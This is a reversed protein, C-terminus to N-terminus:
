GYLTWFIDLFRGPMPRKFSRGALYGLADYTSIDQSFEVRYAHLLQTSLGTAEKCIRNLERFKDLAYKSDCVLPHGAAALHARIQHSRGTVLEVECLTVGQGNSLEAYELPRVITEVAKADAPTEAGDGHMSVRVKNASEDKVLSGKM